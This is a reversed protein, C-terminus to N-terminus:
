KNNLERIIREIKEGKEYSDDLTFTIDPTRRITLKKALSTRIFPKCAKLNELSKEQM